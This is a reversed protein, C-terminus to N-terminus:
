GLLQGGVGERECHVSSREESESTGGRKEGGALGFEGEGGRVAHYNIERGPLYLEPKGKEQNNKFTEDKPVRIQEPRM